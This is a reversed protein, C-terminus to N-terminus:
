DERRLRQDTMPLVIHAGTQSNVCVAKDSVDQISRVGTQIPKLSDRRYGYRIHLVANLVNSDLDLRKGDIVFM